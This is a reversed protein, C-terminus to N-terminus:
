HEGDTSNGGPLGGEEEGEELPLHKIRSDGVWYRVHCKKTLCVSERALNKFRPGTPGNVYHYQGAFRYQRPDSLPYYKDGWHGAFDFWRTALKPNSTAARVKKEEMDWTYSNLNLTPDWLPGRDTQDHLLGYPLIYPHLGPTPYMAHTGVASYVVPRQAVKAATNNSWTGIMTGSGDPNVTYKELAHWRYASGFDHESMFVATPKGHKFRIMTHEWDGVHNGFRINFVKQGLNFSYFFFWFADVVGDKKPVVILFAPASSRGAQDPRYKESQQQINRRKLDSRPKPIPEFPDNCAGAMINCAQGCHEEGRGCWGYISCCKGFRSGKCTFGTNGGCRGNESPTPATPWFSFDAQKAEDDQYESHIAAQQKAAHGHDYEDEPEPWQADDDDNNFRLDPLKPIHQAGGLWEPREEVNDESQLYVFRGHIGGEYDNLDKLNTLNLGHGRNWHPIDTYNMRPAVHALHEALDCPWFHEDSFLHVYPAHDYVYQPIERKEKEEDSWSDPDEDTDWFHSFDPINPPVDDDESNWTWGNSNLHFTGCAGIWRCLQKNSAIFEAEELKESPNSHKTIHEVLGNIAVYGLALAIFGAFCKRGPRPM